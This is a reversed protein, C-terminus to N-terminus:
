QQPSWVKVPVSYVAHFMAGYRIGHRLENPTVQQIELISQRKRFRSWGLQQLRHTLKSDLKRGLLKLTNSLRPVKVLLHLSGDWVNRSEMWSEEFQFVAEVGPHWIALKQSIRKELAHKFAQVFNNRKRLQYLEVNRLLPHVQEKADNIAKECIENAIQNLEQAAPVVIEATEERRRNEIEDMEFGDLTSNTRSMRVQSVISAM